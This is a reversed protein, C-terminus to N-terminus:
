VFLRNKLPFLEETHKWNILIINRLHSSNNALSHYLVLFYHCMVHICYPIRNCHRESNHVHISYDIPNKKTHSVM